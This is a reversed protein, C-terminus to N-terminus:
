QTFLYGGPITDEASLQDNIAKPVSQQIYVVASSSYIPTAHKLYFISGIIAAVLCCIIVWRQRWAITLVGTSARQAEGHPSSVVIKESRPTALALNSKFRQKELM